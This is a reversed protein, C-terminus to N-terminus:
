NKEDDDDDNGVRFVVISHSLNYTLIDALLNPINYASKEHL